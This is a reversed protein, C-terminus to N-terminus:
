RAFPIFGSGILDKVSTSVGAATYMRIQAPSPYIIPPHDAAAVTGNVTLNIKSIIDIETTEKGIIKDYLVLADPRVLLPSFKKSLQLFGSTGIDDTWLAVEAAYGDLLHAVVTPPCVSNLMICDQTSADASDTYSSNGFTVSGSGDEVGNRYVRISDGTYNFVGGVSIWEGTTNATAGGITQLGDTVVSRGSARIKNSDTGNFGVTLSTQGNMRVNILRNDFAGTTNYEVMNVWIHFSVKAAGNILPGIKNLGFTLYNAIDADTFLRAM